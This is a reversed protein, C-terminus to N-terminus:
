AVTAPRKALRPARLAFGVLGFGFIMMTWTGPEPVAAPASVNFTGSGTAGLLSYTGTYTSPFPYGAAAEDIYSQLDGNCPGFDNVTTGCTVAYATGSGRGVLANVLQTNIGTTVYTDDGGGLVGNGGFLIGVYGDGYNYSGAARSFNLYPTANYDDAGSNGAGVVNLSLGAISFLSGNGNIFLGFAARTGLENAYAGGPNAVGGFSAFNTVILDTTLINSQAQYYSPTGPTGASTQGNLLAANQNAIQAGYSPSGFANVALYPTVTITPASQAFASSTWALAVVAACTKLKLNM